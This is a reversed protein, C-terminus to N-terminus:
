SAVHVDVGAPLELKTLAEVTQTNTNKLVILRKYVRIAFHERSKKHKFTSRNVTICTKNVPMPIPGGVTAGTKSVREILSQTFFDLIKHDFSKLRIVISYAAM